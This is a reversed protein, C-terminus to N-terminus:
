AIVDLTTILALEILAYCYKTLKPNLPCIDKEEKIANFYGLVMIDRFNHFYQDFRLSSRVADMTENPMSEVGKVGSNMDTGAISTAQAKEEMILWNDFLTSDKRDFTDRTFAMDFDLPALFLSDDGSSPILVLNNAHSNSHDGLTDRYTGWNIDNKSLLKQIV